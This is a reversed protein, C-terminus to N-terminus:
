KPILKSVYKGYIWLSFHRDAYYNSRTSGIFRVAAYRSNALKYSDKVGGCFYTVMNTVNM